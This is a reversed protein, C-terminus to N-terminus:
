ENQRQIFKESTSKAERLREMIAKGVGREEVKQFIVVDLDLKNIERMILFLKKSYDKETVSFTKVNSKLKEIIEPFACVGIKSGKLSEVIEPIEDKEAIIIKAKINYHGSRNEIKVKGVIKEIEEVSIAGVRLIRAPKKTLDIVTSEIGVETEGGNVVADIEDKFEEIVDEAKTPSIGGTKNASPAAVLTQSLEILKLAISNAPMRIAIKNSGGSTIDPVCAKKELVITLPGPFFEDMLKKALKNVEAVEYAQSIDYIHLTVPRNPPRGKVKFLRKVAKENLGDCGLGYVTETPFAVLGGKKIIEAAKKLSKEDISLIEM